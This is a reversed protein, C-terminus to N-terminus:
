LIKLNKSLLYNKESHQKAANIQWGGTLQDAKKGLFIFKHNLKKFVIKWTCKKQQLLPINNFNGFSIELNKEWNM